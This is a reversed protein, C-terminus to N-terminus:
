VQSEIESQAVFHQRKRSFSMVPEPDNILEERGGRNAAARRQNSNTVSWAAGDGDIGHPFRVGCGMIKRRPNTEGPIGEPISFSREAAAKPYKINKRQRVDVADAVGKGYRKCFLQAATARIVGTKIGITQAVGSQRTINFLIRVTAVSQVVVEVNFPFNCRFYGGHYAIDTRMAYMLREGGVIAVLNSRGIHPEDVSYPGPWQRYAASRQQISINAVNTGDKEVATGLVVTKLGLYQDLSEAAKLALGGERKALAKVVSRARLKAVREKSRNRRQDKKILLFPM